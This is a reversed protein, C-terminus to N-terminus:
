VKVNAKGSEIRMMVISAIGSLTATKSLLEQFPIDVKFVQFLWTRLEAAIMSDMGFKALPTDPSIRSAQSLILSAFHSKIHQLVAERLTLTNQAMAKSIGIPLSGEESREPVDANSGLANSLVLARPDNFVLNTVNFGEERLKIFGAPELGTLVHAGAATDYVHPIEMSGSLALDTIQLFEDENITQIGRRLLLAEIDPNEHLYGIESIMGFGIALAPRGQARRYRAFMDLFHNGACYNGETATGVSGSVSSLMLFFQLESDKGNHQICNHLNWTGSVKPDIGTHWSKNSMTSFLSEDLGMAAQVVGGIKGDVADVVQRVSNPNTVDGKMVQCDVGSGALYQVFRRATPKDMGSRSLFILKRAGREVMWRSLSRGLGGLCGIMIYSKNSDLRTRYTFHQVRISSLPNELSIALKGLRSRSSFFRLASPLKSIDFVRNARLAAFHKLSGIRLLSMSDSLLQSWLNQFRTSKKAELYIESLDFASFTVNRSFQDMELRGSGTIDLKGIEIFRGFPGICRWSERLFDGTLSNLVVDVGRGQTANLVDNAFGADRSDFIREPKVGLTSVLFERKEKTSVTTYVEAGLHLALQIAAIGVGGAGSHILVSEGKQIAARQRLAYLATATVLPYTVVSTFDESDLLKKVAWQPVVERSRFHNPAMAVVRDGKQLGTVGAGTEEVIGSFELACTAGPTDVRGTLVYVDKANVGVAKVSVAVEDEKLQTVTEVERFYLSDFQGPHSIALELTGNTDGLTTEVTKAGVGRKFHHNLNTDPVFRAIHILGRKEAFESDSQASQSCSLVQLLNKATRDPCMSPVDVDYTLMRLSPQELILARSLGAALGMDPLKGDILGGGTVWLLTAANDTLLKLCHMEDKTLSALLPVEVELLSIITSKELLKNDNINSFLLRQVPIGSDQILKSLASGLVTEEREILIIPEERKVGNSLNPKLHKESLIFLSKSADQLAPARIDWANSLSAIDLTSHGLALLVGGSALLARDHDFQTSEFLQSTTDPNLIVILDFSTDGSLKQIAGPQSSALDWQRLSIGADNCSASSYSRLRKYEHSSHLMELIAKGVDHSDHSDTGLELISMCPDRHTLFSIIAGLKLLGEDKVPSRAEHYFDELLPSLYQEELLKPGKIDPKWVVRLMPQRTLEDAVNSTLTPYTQLRSQEMLALSRQASDFLEADFTSSSIGSTCSTARIQWTCAQEKDHNEPVRFAARTLKTPVFPRIRQTQGAATAIIGAQVMADLTIPHIPYKPTYSADKALASNSDVKAIVVKKSRSQPIQIDDLSQFLPGYNLGVNEFRQYWIRKASLELSSEDIQSASKMSKIEIDKNVCITGTSHIAAVGERHSSITFDWWTKSSSVKSLAYPKLNTFIETDPTSAIPITLAKVIHVNRMEIGTGPTLSTETAQSVAEMAMALIAGGPLVITDGLKHDALWPLDDWRLVNRWNIDTDSGGPIKCGLLEHRGISRNRFEYSLRCESWLVDNYSWPYPPLNPIVSPKWADGLSPNNVKDWAIDHGGLWLRGVLSLMMDTSSKGRSLTPFYELSNNAAHLHAKIQKIPLELASHPGIEIVTYGSGTKALQSFAEFFRVPSELNKRWYSANYPGDYAGGTVSSFMPARTGIDSLRPAKAACVALREYEQGIECMHHSHYARGSTRLLRAFCQQGQLRQLLAEIADQEGSFTVSEQSNICAIDIKGQLGAAAIEERGSQESLGAVLMAGNRKIGSVVYGRYYAMTIADALSLYGAAFAAAIEGSSHGVVAQPAIGWSRLLMVLGIQVAVCLPQSYAVDAVQSTEPPARLATTIKFAPPHPLRALVSDMEAVATAFIQFEDLLEMGMQAWQAGQGTFVFAYTSPPKHSPDLRLQFDAEHLKDALDDPGAILFGRESFHHRRLGLSFALDPLSVNAIDPWSAMNKFRAELSAATFASFPLLFKSRVHGNELAMCALHLCYLSSSCATDVVLSPGRLDFVHNIRNSLITSGLGTASYRHLYEPDRLQIQQFDMTFNGVYCGINAGSLDEMRLGASEFSEYIAELLKRQQPDMYQAEMNNIGFFENEFNRVDEDQLFYGGKMNLSGTHSPDPNYFGEINFRSKPVDCQGSREDILLDWLKSPSDVGGPLKCAMGVIAISGKGHRRNGNVQSESAATEQFSASSSIFPSDGNALHPEAHPPM